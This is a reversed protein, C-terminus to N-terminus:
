YGLRQRWYDVGLGLGLGLGLEGGGGGGGGREGGRYVPLQAHPM